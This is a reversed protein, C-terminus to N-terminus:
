GERYFIPGQGYFGITEEIIKDVAKEVSDENVIAFGEYRVDNEIDTYLVLVIEQGLDRLWDGNMWYAKATAVFSNMSQKRERWGGSTYKTAERTDSVQELAWNFCGGVQHMQLYKGSVTIVGGPPDSFVVAGGAHEIAYGSVVVVGNVKVTVDYSKSWYRMSPDAITFRTGTLDAVTEADTFDYIGNAAPDYGVLDCAFTQDPTPAFIGGISGRITM